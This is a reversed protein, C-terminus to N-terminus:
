VGFLPFWVSRSLGVIAVFVITFVIGRKAFIGIEVADTQPFMGLAEYFEYVVFTLVIGFVAGTALVEPLQTIYEGPLGLIGHFVTPFAGGALAGGTLSLVYAATRRDTGPSTGLVRELFRSTPTGRHAPSAGVVVLAVVVGTTGAAIGIFTIPHAPAGMIGGAVIRAGAVVAIVALVVAPAVFRNTRDWHDEVLHNSMFVDQDHSRM